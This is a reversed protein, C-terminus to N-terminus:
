TATEDGFSALVRGKYVAFFAAIPADRLAFWYQEAEALRESSFGAEEPTEWRPWAKAASTTQALAPEVAALFLCAVVALRAALRIPPRAPPQPSEISRM